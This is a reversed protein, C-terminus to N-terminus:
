KDMEVATFANRNVRVQAHAALSMNPTPPSHPILFINPLPLDDPAVVPMASVTAAAM